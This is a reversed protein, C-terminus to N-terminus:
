SIDFRKANLAAIMGDVLDEVSEYIPFTYGALKTQIQVDQLREYEPDCGVRIIKKTQAFENQGMWFGLEYLVIPCISDKCFWFLISESDHLSNFEWAVQEDAATPDDMPFNPRRPNFVDLNCHKLYGLAEKQWDPCNSIGGALFLAIKHKPNYQEPATIVNIM